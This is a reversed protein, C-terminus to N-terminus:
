QDGPPDAPSLPQGLFALTTELRRAQQALPQLPVSADPATHAHEQARLSLTLGTAVTVVMVTGRVARFTRMHVGQLGVAASADISLKARAIKVYCSYANM